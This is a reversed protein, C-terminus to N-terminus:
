CRAAVAAVMQGARKGGREAADRGSTLPAGYVAMLADGIFKDLMGDSQRAVAEFLETFIENLM